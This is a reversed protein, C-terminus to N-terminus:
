RDGVWLCIFGVHVSTVSTTASLCTRRSLGHHSRLPGLSPCCNFIHSVLLMALLNSLLLDYIVLSIECLVTVRFQLGPLSTSMHGPQVVLALLCPSTGMEIRTTHLPKLMSARLPCNHQLRFFCHFCQPGGLRPDDHARSPHPRHGVVIGM